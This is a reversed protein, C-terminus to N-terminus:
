DRYAASNGFFRPEIFSGPWIPVPTWPTIIRGSFGKFSSLGDGVECPAFNGQEIGWAALRASVFEMPLGVVNSYSGEYYEVFKRGEGQIGYAGAKDLPEGGAVYAAIGDAELARFCVITEVVGAVREGGGRALVVGTLVKHERGSLRSLMAVADDRDRPKGLIQQDLVVMTDAGLIVDEPSGGGRAWVTLVAEAKRRALTLAGQGPATEPALWESVAAQVIVFRYGWERLLMARRPSSSALVLM